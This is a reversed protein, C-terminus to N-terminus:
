QSKKWMRKETVKCLQKVILGFILTVREYVYLGELILQEAEQNCIDFTKILQINTHFSMM